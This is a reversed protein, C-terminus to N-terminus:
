RVMFGVRNDHRTHECELYVGGCRYCFEKGCRCTMHMCGESKEVWATCHPCQKFEKGKVLEEFAAENKDPDAGIQYEECTQNEHYIVKCRICYHKTCEPCNFDEPIGGPLNQDL